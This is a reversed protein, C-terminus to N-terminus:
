QREGREIADDRWAGVEEELEVVRKSAAVQGACVQRLQEHLRDLEAARDSQYAELDAVRARLREAEARAADREAGVIERSCTAAFGAASELDAVRARLRAVEELAASEGACAAEAAGCFAPGTCMREVSERLHSLVCDLAANAGAEADSLECGGFHETELWAAFERWEERLRAVEELAASEGARASEAEALLEGKTCTACPCFDCPDRMM